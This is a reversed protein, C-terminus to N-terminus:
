KENRVELIEVEDGVRIKGGPTEAILNQGFLVSGNVTRYTALTRLPEKGDKHGNSQDVTTMVCRGCPKVLHFVTEGIRIRSWTDEAYPESGKVVLNPRFRNMPVPAALRGNLDELSGEGILLFPYGDAFSVTDEKPRLQRKYVDGLGR